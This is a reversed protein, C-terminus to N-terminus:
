KSLALNDVAITILDQGDDSALGVSFPSVDINFSLLSAPLTVCPSIEILNDPLMEVKASELGVGGFLSAADASPNTLTMLQEQFM